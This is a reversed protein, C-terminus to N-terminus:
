WPGDGYKAGCADALDLHAQAADISPNGPEPRQGSAFILRLEEGAAAIGDDEAQSALLAIPWMSTPDFQAGDQGDLQSLQRCAERDKDVAPVPSPAATTAATAPSGAVSEAPKNDGGTAAYAVGAAGLGLLAAAAIVWSARRPIRSTM